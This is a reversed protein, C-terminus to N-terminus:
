TMDELGDFSTRETAKSEAIAREGAPTAAFYQTSEGTSETQPDSDRATVLGQRQLRDLAAFISALLPEKGSTETVKDTITFVSGEGRLLYVATLVLLDFPRLSPIQKPAVAAEPAAKAAERRRRLIGRARSVARNAMEQEDITSREPLEAQVAWVAFFDELAERHRPYRECWRVLAAYSPTSEELMIEQLIHQLPENRGTM